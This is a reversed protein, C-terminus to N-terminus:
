EYSDEAELKQTRSKLKMSAKLLLESTHEDFSMKPTKETLSRSIINSTPM